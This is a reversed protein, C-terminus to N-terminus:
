VLKNNISVTHRAALSQIFTSCCISISSLREIRHDEMQQSSFCTHHSPVTRSASFPLSLFFTGGSSTDNPPKESAVHPLKPSQKSISKDTEICINLHLDKDDSPNEVGSTYVTDTSCLGFGGKRGRPSVSRLSIIRRM